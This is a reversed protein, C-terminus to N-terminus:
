LEIVPTDTGPLTGNSLDRGFSDPFTDNPKSLRKAVSYDLEFVRDVPHAIVGIIITCTSGEPIGQAQRETAIHQRGGCRAIGVAEPTADTAQPEYGNCHGSQQTKRPAKYTDAASRVAAPLARPSM